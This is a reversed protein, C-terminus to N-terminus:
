EKTTQKRNVIVDGATAEVSGGHQYIFVRSGDSASAEVRADNYMNVSVRAHFGTTLHLKSDHRVFIDLVQYDKVRIFANCKGLLIVTKRDPNYGSVHENLYVGNRHLEDSTFHKAIYKVSPWDHKICFDQGRVFKEILGDADETEKWEGQWQECLGLSIAEEKLGKSRYYSPSLYKFM